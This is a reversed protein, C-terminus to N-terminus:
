KAESLILRQTKHSYGVWIEYDHIFRFLELQVMDKVEPFWLFGLNDCKPLHRVTVYATTKPPAIIVEVEHHDPSINWRKQAFMGLVVAKEITIM